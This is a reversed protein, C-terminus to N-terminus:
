SEILQHLLNSSDIDDLTKVFEDLEDLEDKKNLGSKMVQVLISKIYDKNPNPKCAYTSFLNKVTKVKMFHFRTITSTLEEELGADFFESIINVFDQASSQNEKILWISLLPIYRGGDFTFPGDELLINLGFLKNALSLSADMSYYDIFLAYSTNLAESFAKTNQYFINKKDFNFSHALYYFCHSEEQTSLTDEINFMISQITEKHWGLSIYHGLQHYLLARNESSENNLIQIISKKFINSILNDDINILQKIQTLLFQMASLSDSEIHPEFLATIVDNDDVQNDIMSFLLEFVVHWAPDGLHEGIVADREGLKNANNNFNICIYNATYYELFTKHTFTNDFFISRQEAYELFQVASEKAEDFDTCNNKQFLYNAIHAIAMDNTTKKDNSNQCYQWYALSSFAGKMSRINKINFKLEKEEKDRKEVLTETIAQYVDLRSDPIKVNNLALMSMLSLILPNSKLDNSVGALQSKCDIAEIERQKKNNLQTTYFNDIFQDIQDDNFPTISFKDFLGETFEIDNFGIFRSTTISKVLLNTSCFNVIDGVTQEKQSIDFIEDLGDFLFYTPTHEILYSLVDKTINEIQYEFKLLRELYDIISLNHKNKEQVYKRLEIRIPTHKKGKLLLLMINKVLLSKGAGPDGLIICHNKNALLDSTTLEEKHLNSPTLEDDVKERILLPEVYLNNITMNQPKNFKTAHGIFRVSSIHSSATSNYKELFNNLKPELEPSLKKYINDLADVVKSSDIVTKVEFFEPTIIPYKHVLGNLNSGQLWEVKLSKLIRHLEHKVSSYDISSFCKSEKIVAQIWAPLKPHIIIQKNFDDLLDITTNAAKHSITFYYIFNTIDPILDRDLISHLTFKIIEKAVMSSNLNGSTNLKCQVVGSNVGNRTLKIDRGREGVGVMLTAKNHVHNLDDNLRCEFLRCTFEEFRRSDFSSFNHSTNAIIKPKTNM